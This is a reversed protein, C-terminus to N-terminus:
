ETSWAPRSSLFGGAEAEGTSPNFATCWWWGAIITNSLVCINNTVTSHTKTGVQMGGIFHLNVLSGKLFTEVLKDLGQMSGKEEM